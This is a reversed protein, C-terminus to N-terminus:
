QCHERRVYHCCRVTKIEERPVWTRKCVWHGPKQLPYTIIPGPCYYSTCTCPDFHWSGPLKCCRTTVPGACYHREIQWDGTCVKYCKETWVPECVYSKCVRQRPEMVTKYYTIPIERVHQEMVPCYTTWRVPVQYEQWVPKCVTYPVERVHQELIKQ